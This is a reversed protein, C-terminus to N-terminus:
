RLLMRAACVRFIGSFDAYNEIEVYGYSLLFDTLIKKQEYGHELMLWGGPLLHHIAQEVILHLDHLGNKSAVLAERPEFCLENQQLHPDGKAIYPPNSIIIHFSEGFSLADCWNGERFTINHIALREANHKAVALAAASRDTAVLSWCPREHAIALAIAGSGTGLDAVRIAEDAPFKQLAREVLLETEPRPILTAPTVELNLSWFERQGLIYAIPEGAKRRMILQQFNQASSVKISEDLRVILQARTLGLVHALLLEADLHPTDSSQQLLQIAWTLLVRVSDERVIM